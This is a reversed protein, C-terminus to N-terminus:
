RAGLDSLKLRRGDGPAETGADGGGVEGTGATREEDAPAAQGPRPDDSRDSETGSVGAHVPDASSRKAREIESELDAQGTQAVATRGTHDVAHSRAETSLYYIGHVKEKRNDPNHKLVNFASLADAFSEFESVTRGRTDTRSQVTPIFRIAYLVPQGIIRAFLAAVIFRFM